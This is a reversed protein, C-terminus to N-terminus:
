NPKLDLIERPDTSSEKETEIRIEDGDTVFVTSGHSGTWYTEINMNDLTKLVDAHPHGYRSDFGSSIITYSPQVENMFVDSSSTNSGHHGAQYVDSELESGYEEVMREEAEFEADGTNLYTFNNYDISIAVSNYHLDSGSEGEPPNLVNVNVNSDNIPITDGEEIILLEHDYEDVTDLYDEYTNSNHPVGSDYINRIGDKEDEYVEIISSHGGIHDAHGHTAILHDIRDIDKSELYHIVEEGDQRWDGTDILITENTTSKILTSDAQGVDIHHIEIDGSNDIIMNEDSETYDSIIFVGAGLGIILCATITYSLIKKGVNEVM